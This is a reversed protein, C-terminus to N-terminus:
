HLYYQWQQTELVVDFQTQVQFHFPFSVFPYQLATVFGHICPTSTDILVRPPESLMLLTMSSSFSPTAINPFCVGSLVPIDLLVCFSVDGM